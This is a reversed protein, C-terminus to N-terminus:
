LDDDDRRAPPRPMTTYQTVDLLESTLAIDDTM